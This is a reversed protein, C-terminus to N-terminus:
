LKKKRTAVVYYYSDKVRVYEEKYPYLLNEKLEKLMKIKKTRDRDFTKGYVGAIIQYKDNIRNWGTINKYPNQTMFTDINLNNNPKERYVLEGQIIRNKNKKMGYTYPTIIKTNNNKLAVSDNMGKGIEATLSSNYDLDMYDLVEIYDDLINRREGLWEVFERVFGITNSNKIGTANEFQEILKNVYELRYDKTIKRKRQVYIDKEM